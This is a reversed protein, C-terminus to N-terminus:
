SSHKKKKAQLKRYQYAKVFSVIVQVQEEKPGMFEIGTLYHNSSEDKRTHRVRGKIKIKEGELDITVLVVYVGEVPDATKLLVGTQSLNLTQGRGTAKKKGKEDFLVYIVSNIAEIRPYRRKEGQNSVPQEPSM